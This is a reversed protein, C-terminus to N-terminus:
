IKKLQKLLDKSVNSFRIALSREQERIISGEVDFKTNEDFIIQIVTNEGINFKDKELREILMGGASINFVKRKKKSENVLCLMNANSARHFMRSEHMIKGIGWHFLNGGKM